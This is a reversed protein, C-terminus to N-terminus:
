TQCAKESAPLNKSDIVLAYSADQNQKNITTMSEIAARIRPFWFFHTLLPLPSQALLSILPSSISVVDGLPESESLQQLL